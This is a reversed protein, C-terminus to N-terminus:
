MYINLYSRKWTEGQLSHAAFVLPLGTSRGRAAAAPAAAPVLGSVVVVVKVVVLVLLLLLLM